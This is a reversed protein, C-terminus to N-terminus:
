TATIPRACEQQPQLSQALYVPKAAGASSLVATQGFPTDSILEFGVPKTESASVLCLGALVPMEGGCPTLVQLPTGHALGVVAFAEAVTEVPHREVRHQQWASESSLSRELRGHHM